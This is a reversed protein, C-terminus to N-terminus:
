LGSVPLDMFKQRIDEMVGNMGLAHYQQYLNLFNDRQAVSASGKASCALWEALLRDRLMAQVGRRLARVSLAQRILWMVLTSILAPIGALCLFQYLTM